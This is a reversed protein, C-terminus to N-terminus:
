PDSPSEDDTVTAVAAAVPEFSIGDVTEDVELPFGFLTDRDSRSTFRYDGNQDVELLLRDRMAPSVRFRMSRRAGNLGFPHSLGDHPARGLAMVALFRAQEIVSEEGVLLVNRDDRNM